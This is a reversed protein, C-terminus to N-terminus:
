KSRGGAPERTILKALAVVDLNDPLENKHRGRQGPARDPSARSNNDANNDARDEAPAPGAAPRQATAPVLLKPAPQTWDLFWQEFCPLTRFSWVASMRKKAITRFALMTESPLFLKPSIEGRQEGKHIGFPEQQRLYKLLEEKAGVRQAEVLLGSYRVTTLEARLCC